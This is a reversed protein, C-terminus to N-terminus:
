HFQFLRILTLHKINHPKRMIQTMFQLKLIQNKDLFRPTRRVPAHLQGPDRCSKSRKVKNPVSHVKLSRIRFLNSEHITMSHSISIITQKEKNVSHNPVWSYGGKWDTESPNTKNAFWAFWAFRAFWMTWCPM